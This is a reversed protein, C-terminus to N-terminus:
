KLMGSLPQEQLRSSVSASPPALIKGGPPPPLLGVGAGSNKPRTRGSDSKGKLLHLSMQVYIHIECCLLFVQLYSFMEELFVAMITRSGAKELIVM